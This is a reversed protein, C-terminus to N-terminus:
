AGTTASVGTTESETTALFAIPGGAPLRGTVEERTTPGSGMASNTESGRSRIAKTIASSPSGSSVANAHNLIVRMLLPLVGGDGSAIPPADVKGNVVPLKVTVMTKCRVHLMAELRMRGGGDGGNSETTVIAVVAKRCSWFGTGVRPIEVWHSHGPQITAGQPLGAAPNVQKRVGGSLEISGGFGDVGAGVTASEVAASWQSMRMVYVLINVNGDNDNKILSRHRRRQHWPILDDKYGQRGFDLSEKKKFFGWLSFHRVQARVYIKGLDDKVIELPISREPDRVWPKSSCDKTLVEYQIRGHQDIIPDDKSGGEIRFDFLLPPDFRSKAALCHVELIAELDEGEFEFSGKLPTVTIPGSTQGDSVSDARVHLRFGHLKSEFIARQMGPVIGGEKVITELDSEQRSISEEGVSFASRTSHDPSLNDTRDSKTKGFIRDMVNTSMRRIIGPRPSKEADGPADQDDVTPLPGWTIAQESSGTGSAGPNAEAM